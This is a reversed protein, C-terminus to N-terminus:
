RRLTRSRHWELHQHADIFGPAIVGEACVVEADNIRPHQACSEAVYLLRGTETSFLVEGDCIVRDPTVVTGKVRVLNATGAVASCERFPGACHTGAHGRQGRLDSHQQGVPRGTGQM